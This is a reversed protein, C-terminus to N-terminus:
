ELLFDLPKVTKHLSTSAFGRFIHYINLVQNFMQLLERYLYKCVQKKKELEICQDRLHRAKETLENCEQQGHTGLPAKSAEVITNNKDDTVKVTVKIPEKDKKNDKPQPKEREIAFELDGVVKSLEDDM